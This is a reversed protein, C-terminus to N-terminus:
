HMIYHYFVVPLSVMFPLGSYKQRPIAVHKRLYRM